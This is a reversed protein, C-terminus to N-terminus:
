RPVGPPPLAPAVNQPNQPNQQSPAESNDFGTTAPSRPGLIVVHSIRGTHPKREKIHLHTPFKKALENVAEVSVGRRDRLDRLTIEGGCQQLVRLVRSLLKETNGALHEGLAQGQKRSFWRMLKIAGGASAVDLEQEVSREGYKMAHLLLCIKWANEAWRVTLSANQDGEAMAQRTCHNSNMRMLMKASASVRITRPQDGNARYNAVLSRLLTEWRAAVCPNIPETEDEEEQLRAGTDFLLCRPLFGSALLEDGKLSSHFIDPQLLWLISLCPKRLGVPPRGVRDYQVAENSYGSLFLGVDTKNSYLGTLIQMMSRAEASMSGLAEGPQAAMIVALQENTCNGVTLRPCASMLGEVVAIEKELRCLEDVPDEEKVGKELRKEIGKKRQTAAGLRAKLMPMANEKYDRAAEGDMREVPAFVHQFSNSKGTGSAALGLIFVNGMVVHGRITAMQLGAGVSVSIAGLVAAAALPMNHAPSVRFVERAMEGAVGPFADIPFPVDFDDADPISSADEPGHSGSPDFKWNENM